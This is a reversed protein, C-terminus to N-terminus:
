DADHEAKWAALKDEPVYVEAPTDGNWEISGTAVLTTVESGHQLYRPSHAEARISMWVGDLDATGTMRLVIAHDAHSTM